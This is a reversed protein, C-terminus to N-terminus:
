IFFSIWLSLVNSTSLAWCHPSQSKAYSSFTCDSSFTQQAMISSLTGSSATIIYPSRGFADLTLNYASCVTKSKITWISPKQKNTQQQQQRNQTVFLVSIFLILLSKMSISYNIYLSFTAQSTKRSQIEVPVHLYELTLLNEWNIIIAM